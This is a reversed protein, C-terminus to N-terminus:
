GQVVRGTKALASTAPQVPTPLTTGFLRDWLKFMSAYNGRLKAHHLDHDENRALLPIWRAIRSSFGSHILLERANRVSSATLFAWGDFTGFILRAAILGAVMGMGGIMWELPHVYIYEMPLPAYARHHIRHIKRYLLSSAHMARHYFYFYADDVVLIILLSGLFTPAGKWTLTLMGDPLSALSALTLSLLLVLNLLILPVRRAFEAAALPNPQLRQVQLAASRLLVYTWLFGAANSTFWVLFVWFAM